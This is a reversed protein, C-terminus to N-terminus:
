TSFCPFCVVCASYTLVCVCVTQLRIYGCVTSECFLLEVRTHGGIGKPLGHRACLTCSPDWCVVACTDQLEALPVLVGFGRGGAGLARSVLARWLLEPICCVYECACVALM